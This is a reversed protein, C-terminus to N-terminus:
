TDPSRLGFVAIVGACRSGAAFRIALVKSMAVLGFAKAVAVFQLYRSGSRMARTDAAPSRDAITGSEFLQTTDAPPLTTV